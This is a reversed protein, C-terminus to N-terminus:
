TLRIAPQYERHVNQADHSELRLCLTGHIGPQFKTHWSHWVLYQAEHIGDIIGFVSFRLILYLLFYITQFM